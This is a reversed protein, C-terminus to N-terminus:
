FQQIKKDWERRKSFRRMAEFIMVVFPAFISVIASRMRGQGNTKEFYLVSPIVIISAGLFALPHDFTSVIGYALLSVLYYAWMRISYEKFTEGFMHTEKEVTNM